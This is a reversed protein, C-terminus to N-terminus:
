PPPPTFSAQICSSFAQKESDSVYPASFEVKSSVGAPVAVASTYTIEVQPACIKARPAVGALWANVDDKSHEGGLVQTMDVTVTMTKVQETYYCRGGSAVSVGVVLLVGVGCLVLLRASSRFDPFIKFGM